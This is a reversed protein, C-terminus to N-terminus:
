LLQLHRDASSCGAPMQLKKLVEETLQILCTPFLANAEMLSLADQAFSQCCRDVSM